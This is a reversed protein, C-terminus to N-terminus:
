PKRFHMVARDDGIILVAIMYFIERPDVIAAISKDFDVRKTIDHEHAILAQTDLTIEAISDRLQFPKNGAPGHILAEPSARPWGRADGEMTRRAYMGTLIGMSFQIPCVM